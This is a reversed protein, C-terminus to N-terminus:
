EHIVKYAWFYYNSRSQFLLYVPTLFIDLSILLKRILGPKANYAIGKEGFLFTGGLKIVKYGRRTFFDPFYYSHHHQYENGDDTQYDIQGFPTAIIVVKKAASEMQNLIKDAQSSKLHEIVQSLMVVDYSKPQIKIRTVDALTLKDFLSRTALRNIYPQFIDVGQAYTISHRKKLLEMPLGQGCGLDLISFPYRPVLWNPIFVWSLMQSYIAWVVKDIM